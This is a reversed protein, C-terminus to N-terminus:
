GNVSCRISTDKKKEPKAQNTQFDKVTFKSSPGAVTQGNELTIIIKWQYTKLPDLQKKLVFTTEDSTEYEDILIEEDDSIYLHYKAANPIKKWKFVFNEKDSSFELDVNKEEKCIASGGRTASIIEKSQKLNPKIVNQSLTNQSAKPKPVDAKLPKPTQSIVLRNSNNSLTQSEITPSPPLFNLESGSENDFTQAVERGSNAANLWLLFSFSFIILLAACSWVLGSQSKLFLTITPFISIPLVESEEKSPTDEIDSETMIASWLKEVSPLPLSKRCDPCILLHKGIEHRETKELSDSHYASLEFQTLHKFNTM